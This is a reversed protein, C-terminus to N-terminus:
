QRARRGLVLAVLETRSGVKMKSFINNIHRYTTHESIFLLTSIESTTLGQCLLGVIESERKTLGTLRSDIASEDPPAIRRYLNYLNKLHPQVTALIAKEREWLAKGERNGGLSLALRGQRDQIMVGVSCTLHLPRVFDAVFESKTFESSRWDAYTLPRRPTYHAVCPDLGLYYESYERLPKRPIDVTRSEPTIGGHADLLFAFMSDLPVLERIGEIAKGIFSDLDPQSGAERLFDSIRRWDQSSLEGAENESRM